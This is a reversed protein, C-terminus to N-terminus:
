ASAILGQRCAILGQDVEADRGRGGGREVVLLGTPLSESAHRINHVLQPSARPLAHLSWGAVMMWCRIETLCLM